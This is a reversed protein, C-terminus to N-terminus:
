SKITIFVPEKRKLAADIVISLKKFAMKSENGKGIGTVFTVPAICGRLEKRADNAPHILILSRKPVERLWFHWQYKLSFRKEIRYRGEPICSQGPKNEQWPLEITYVIFQNWDRIVGNTGTPYYTRSLTLEM